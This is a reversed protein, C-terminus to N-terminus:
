KILFNSKETCVLTMFNIVVHQRKMMLIKCHSFGMDYYSHYYFNGEACFSLVFILMFFQSILVDFDRGLSITLLRNVILKIVSGNRVFTVTNHLLRLKYAHKAHLKSAPRM